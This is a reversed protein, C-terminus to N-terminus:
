HKENPEDRCSETEERDGRERKPGRLIHDIKELVDPPPPGLVLKVAEYIAWRVRGWVQDLRGRGDAGM